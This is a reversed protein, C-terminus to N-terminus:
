RFQGAFYGAIPSGSRGAASPPVQSPGPAPGSEAPNPGPEVPGPGPEGPNVSPGPEPPPEGGPCSGPDGVYEMDVSETVLYDGDAVSVTTPGEQASPPALFVFDPGLPEVPVISPEPQTGVVVSRISGSPLGGLTGIMHM